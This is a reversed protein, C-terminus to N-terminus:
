YTAEQKVTNPLLRVPTERLKPVASFLQKTYLHQPQKIITKKDGFEVIEGRLIIALNSAYKRVHRLDHTIFLVASKTQKTLEAILELVKAATLSDLATTPEDAILLKPKLITAMAIAARQLQGGSLQFPYSKYVRKESLHVNKLSLLACEKRENKSMGTHTKLMEDFQKGITMFPTFAGQYDQFIYAIEKGRIKQFEKESFRTIEQDDLFIKGSLVMLESPLLGGIASAMVSKGSGSEGVLALWEGEQVTLNVQDLITSDRHKVTLDKITLINM